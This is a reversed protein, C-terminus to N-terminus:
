SPQHILEIALSDTRESMLSLLRAMEQGVQHEREASVRLQELGQAAHSRLKFEAALLEDAKTIGMSKATLWAGIAILENIKPGHVAELAQYARTRKIRMVITGKTAYSEIGADGEFESTIIGVGQSLHEAELNLIMDHDHLPGIMAEKQGEGRRNPHGSQPWGLQSRGYWLHEGEPQASGVRELIDKFRM